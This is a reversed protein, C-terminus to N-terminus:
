FNILCCVVGQHCSLLISMSDQFLRVIIIPWLLPWSPRYVEPTWSFLIVKLLTEYIILSVLLCFIYYIIIFVKNSACNLKIVYICIFQKSKKEQWLLDIQQLLHLESYVKLIDWQNAFNPNKENRAVKRFMIYYQGPTYVLGEDCQGHSWSFQAFNEGNKFVLGNFIRPFALTSNQQLQPLFVRM